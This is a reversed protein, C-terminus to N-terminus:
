ATVELNTEKANLNVIHPTEFSPSSWVEYQRKGDIRGWFQATEFDFNWPYALVTKIKVSKNDKTSVQIWHTKEGPKKAIIDCGFVDCGVMVFKGINTKKDRIYKQKRHQRFVEWGRSELYKKVEIEYANGKDYASTM